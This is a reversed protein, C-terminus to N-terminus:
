DIDGMLCTAIHSIAQDSKDPEAKIQRCAAPILGSRAWTPLLIGVM